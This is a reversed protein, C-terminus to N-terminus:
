QLEFSFSRPFMDPALGETVDVYNWGELFHSAGLLCM